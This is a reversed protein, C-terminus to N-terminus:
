PQPTHTHTTIPRPHPHYPTSPTPPDHVSLFFIGPVAPPVTRKLVGITLEAVKETPAKPGELGNKVMNPKLVQNINPNPNPNPNPEPDPHTNPEPDPSPYRLTHQHQTRDTDTTPSPTLPVTYPNLTPTPVSGELYVNHM